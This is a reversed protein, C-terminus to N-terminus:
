VRRPARPKGLPSRSRAARWCWQPCRLWSPASRRTAPPMSAKMPSLQTTASSSFDIKTQATRLFCSDAMSRTGVFIRANTRGACLFPSSIMVSRVGRPAAAYQVYACMRDLRRRRTVPGAGDRLTDHLTYLTYKALSWLSWRVSARRLLHLCFAQLVRM